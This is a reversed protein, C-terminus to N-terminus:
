TYKQTVPRAGGGTPISGGHIGAFALPKRPFIFPTLHQLNGLEVPLPHGGTTLLEMLTLRQHVKPYDVRTAVRQVKLLKDVTQHAHFVFVEDSLKAGSLSADLVEEDQRAMALLLEVPLILGRLSEM